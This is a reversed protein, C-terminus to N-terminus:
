TGLLVDIRDLRMVHFSLDKEYEQIWVRIMNIVSKHGSKIMPIQYRQVLSDDVFNHTLGDDFLIQFPQDIVERRMHLLDHSGFLNVHCMKYPAVKKVVM